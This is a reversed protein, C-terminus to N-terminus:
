ARHTRKVHELHGDGAASGTEGDVHRHELLGLLFQVAVDLGMGRGQVLEVGRNGDEAGVLAQTDVVRSIGLEPREIGVPEVAVRGIGLDEVPQAVLAADRLLGIVAFPAGLLEGGIGRDLRALVPPVQGIAARQVHDALLVGEAADGIEILVDGVLQRKFAAVVLQDAHLALRQVIELLADREQARVAAELEVVRGERLEPLEVGLHEFGLGMDLLQGLM